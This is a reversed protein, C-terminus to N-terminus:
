NSPKKKFFLIYAVSFLLYCASISCVMPDISFNYYVLRSSNSIFLQHYNSYTSLLNFVPSFGLTSNSYANASDFVMETSNQTTLLQNFFDKLSPLSNVLLL